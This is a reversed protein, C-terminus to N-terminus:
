QYLYDKEDSVDFSIGLDRASVYDDDFSVDLEEIEADRSAIVGEAIMESKIQKAASMFLAFHNM